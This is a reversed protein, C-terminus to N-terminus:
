VERFPLSSWLPGWIEAYRACLGVVGPQVARRSFSM